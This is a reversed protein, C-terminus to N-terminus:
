WTDLGELRVGSGEVVHGITYIKADGTSKLQTIVNEADNADVVLVMGIGCNFTRAMENAAVNGAKKLWQFVAPLQWQTVDVVCGLEKPLIRPINELFGGGTIHSIGKILGTKAVPLIQRTYITTPELLAHGLSQYQTSWPCPSSMTLQQLNIIKRVLSFGNSHIGSSSVGILVDGLKIKDFMPLLQSRSVAGVAFGALDYDEAFCNPDFTCHFFNIWVGGQYMGPMEATEGGVLACGSQICGEAIGKIVSAAVNVKLKSCGYYDLFFLPEAGQVILDNVSM